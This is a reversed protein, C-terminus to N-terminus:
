GWADAMAKAIGPFTKAKIKGRDKKPIMDLWSGYRLRGNKRISIFTPGEPQVVTQKEFL